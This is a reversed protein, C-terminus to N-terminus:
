KKGARSGYSQELERVVMARLEDYGLTTLPKGNVFFEPTRSVKLAVADKMDQKIMQALQPEAMDAKLKDMQLGIGEVAKLALDLRAVHNVAWNPQAALLSELTELYKGQRRAAELLKVVEDAGRHFPVYRITLRVRGPYEALIKKVYPYFARCGECAPDFFEVIEVKAGSDGLSPSHFRTLLARDAIPSQAAAPLLFTTGLLLGGLGAFLWKTNM